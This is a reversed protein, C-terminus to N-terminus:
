AVCNKWPMTSGRSSRASRVNLVTAIEELSADAFFRLLVVQRHKERLSAVAHRLEAALRRARSGNGAVSPLRCDRTPKVMNRADARPLWALAIPRSRGRACEEPLPQLLIPTSGPPFDCAENFNALSKWAQILTGFGPRRCCQHRPDFRHRGSCAPKSRSSSVAFRRRTERGRKALLAPPKWGNLPLTWLLCEM